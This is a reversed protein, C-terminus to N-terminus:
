PGDYVVTFSRDTYPNAVGDGQLDVTFDVSVDGDVGYDYAYSSPSNLRSGATNRVLSGSFAVENTGVYTVVATATANAHFALLNNNGADELICGLSLRSAGPTIVSTSPGPSGLGELETINNVSSGAAGANLLTGTGAVSQIPGSFVLCSFENSYVRLSSTMPTVALGLVSEVAARADVLGMGAHRNPFPAWNGFKHTTAKLISEVQAPTIAITASAAAQHMLAVVGAVHPSAMSTGSITIYDPVQTTGYKTAFAPASIVTATKARASEIHAGPAAVDPWNNAISQPGRSTSSDLGGESTGLEADSYNAVCVLGGIPVAPLSITKVKCLRNLNDAAVGGDGGNGASFVVTIGAGIAGRIAANDAASPTGTGGFSNNVVRIQPYGPSSPNAIMHDYAATYSVISNGAGQGYVYLSAGPAVGRVRGSSATGDGVAIGSVHTGHGNHVDSDIVPQYGAVLYRLNRGPVIRSALDPHTADIGTDIVAVGVGSGNFGLSEAVENIRTANRATSMHYELPANTELGAVAPDELLANWEGATARGYAIPLETMLLLPEVGYKGLLRKTMAADRFTVVLDATSGPSLASLSYRAGDTVLLPDGPSTTPSSALGPLVSLMFACSISLSLLTKRM